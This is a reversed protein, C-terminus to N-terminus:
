PKIRPFLSHKPDQYLDSFLRFKDNATRTSIIWRNIFRAEGMAKLQRSLVSRAEVAPAELGCGAIDCGAQALTDAIGAGIGSSVGTVLARYYSLDINLTM